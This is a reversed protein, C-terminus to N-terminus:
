LELVPEVMRKINIYHVGMLGSNADPKAEVFRFVLRGGAADGQILSLWEESSAVDINHLKFEPNVTDEESSEISSFFADWGDVIARREALDVSLLQQFQAETVWYGEMYQQDPVIAGNSYFQAQLGISTLRESPILDTFMLHEYFDGFTTGVKNNIYKLVRKSDFVHNLKSELAFGWLSNGAKIELPTAPYIQMTRMHALHIENFDNVLFPDFVEDGPFNYGNFFFVNAGAWHSISFPIDDAIPIIKIARELEFRTEASDLADNVVQLHLQYKTETYAKQTFIIQGNESLAFSDTPHLITTVNLPDGRDITLISLTDEEPKLQTDVWFTYAEQAPLMEIFAPPLVRLRIAEPNTFSNLDNQVHVSLQYDGQPLSDQGSLRVVGTNQDIEFYDSLAITDTPSISASDLFYSLNGSARVKPDGSTWVEKPSINMKYHQYGVYNVREELAIENTFEECALLPLFLWLFKYYKM